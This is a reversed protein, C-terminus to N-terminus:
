IEESSTKKGFDGPGRAWCQVDNIGLSTGDVNFVMTDHVILGIVGDERLGILGLNETAPHARYNLTTMDQM